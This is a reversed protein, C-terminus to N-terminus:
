LTYVQDRCQRQFKSRDYIDLPGEDSILRQFWKIVKDYVKDSFTAVNVEAANRGRRYADKNEVLCEMAYKWKAYNTTKFNGARHHM